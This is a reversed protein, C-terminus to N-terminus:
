DFTRLQGHCHRVVRVALFLRHVNDSDTPLDPYSFFNNPTWIQALCPDQM